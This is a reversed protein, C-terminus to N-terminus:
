GRQHGGATLLLPLSCWTLLCTCSLYHCLSLGCSNLGVASCRHARLSVQCTTLACELRLSSVVVALVALVALATRREFATVSNFTGMSRMWASSGAHLRPKGSRAPWSRERESPNAGRAGAACGSGSAPAGCAGQPFPLRGAHFRVGDDARTEWNARLSFHSFRPPTYFFVTKNRPGDFEAESRLTERCFYCFCKKIWILLDIGM